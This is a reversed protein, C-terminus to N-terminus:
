GSTMYTSATHLISLPAKTPTLKLTSFGRKKGTWTWCLTYEQGSKFCGTNLSIGSSCPLFYKSELDQKDIGDCAMIDGPLRTSLFDTQMLQAVTREEDSDRRFVGQTVIRAIAQEKIVLKKVPRKYLKKRKDNSWVSPHVPRWDNGMTYDEETWTDDMRADYEFTFGLQRSVKPVPGNKYANCVRCMTDNGSSISVTGNRIISYVLGPEGKIYQFSNEGPPICPRM